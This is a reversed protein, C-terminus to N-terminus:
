IYPPHRIQFRRLEFGAHDYEGEHIQLRPADKTDRRTIETVVVQQGASQRPGITEAKLNRVPAVADRTMQQCLCRCFNAPIMRRCVTALLHAIPIPSMPKRSICIPAASNIITYAATRLTM